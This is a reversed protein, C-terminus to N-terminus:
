VRGLKARDTFMCELKGLLEAASHPRNAADLETCAQMITELAAAVPDKPLTSLKAQSLPQPNGGELCYYITQGLSYLDSQPTAKGRIQEPAMYSHKGVLTGTANGVFENASGFDILFVKGTASVILNDPTIDRHVIPKPREHLFSLLGAVQVAYSLVKDAPQPGHEYVLDKLTQGSIYELLMYKRNQEVFFDYVAAIQPHQLTKLIRAEREFQESAKEALDPDVGFPLISEKLVYKTGDNDEVLYLASFGGSALQRVVRIRGDQLCSGKQLPAFGTLEINKNTLSEWLQIYTVGPLLGSEFDRFRKLESLQSINRCFPARREIEAALLELSEPYLRSLQLRIPRGNKVALELFFRHNGRRPLDVIAVSQIESWFCTSTTFQYHIGFQDCTLVDKVSLFTLAVIGAVLNLTVLAFVVLPPLSLCSSPIQALVCTCTLAFLLVLPPLSVQLLRKASLENLYRRISSGPLLRYPILTVQNPKPPFHQPKLAAGFTDALASRVCRVLTPADTNSGQM